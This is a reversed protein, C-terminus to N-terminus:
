VAFFEGSTVASVSLSSLIMQNQAETPSVLALSRQYQKFTEHESQFSIRVLLPLLIGAIKTEGNPFRGVMRILIRVQCCTNM